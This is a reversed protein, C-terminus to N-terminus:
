DLLGKVCARNSKPRKVPDFQLALMAGPEVLQLAMRERGM